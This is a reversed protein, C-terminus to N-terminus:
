VEGNTMGIYESQNLSGRLKPCPDNMREAIMVRLADGRDFRVKGRNNMTRCPKAMNFVKWLVRIVLTHSYNYRGLAKFHGGCFEELSSGALARVKKAM